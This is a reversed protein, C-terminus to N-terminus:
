AKGSRHILRHRGVNLGSYTNAKQIILISVVRRVTINAFRKVMERKASSSASFLTKLALRQQTLM